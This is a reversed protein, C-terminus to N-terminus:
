VLIALNLEKQLVVWPSLSIEGQTIDSILNSVRNTSGSSLVELVGRRYSTELSKKGNNPEESIFKRLEMLRFIDMEEEIGRPTTSKIREGSHAYITDGIIVWPLPILVRDGSYLNRFELLYDKPNIRYLLTGEFLIIEIPTLTPIIRDFPISSLSLCEKVLKLIESNEFIKM